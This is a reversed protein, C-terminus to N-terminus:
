ACAALRSERDEAFERVKRYLTSKDIGLIEAAQRYNGVRGLIERIHAQELEALSVMEGVVPRPARNPSADLLLDNRDIQDGRGLIAAREITNRLERLNGPWTHAQLMQQAAATFDRAIRDGRPNLQALFRRACPVIDEPRRRLPVVRLTVVNLRYFLDERFRGAAVEAALDRHTAAIIRIDVQQTETDGVREFERDQLLRLLKPQLALPLDGVEDLFLTGRHAAAARGVSDQVAGTFAGKVHGFLQSELLQPHLCPCHVTVFPQDFRASRRHIERALVSKGTGSEGLLLVNADSEAARWALQLLRNMIPNRSEVGAAAPPREGVAPAVGAPRAAPPPGRLAVELAHFPFPKVLCTSAGSRRLHGVASAERTLVIVSCGHSRGTRLVAEAGAGALEWDLVMVPYDGRGLEQEVEIASRALRPEFGRSRLGPSLVPRGQVEDGVLLIRM